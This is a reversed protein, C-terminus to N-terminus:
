EDSDTKSTIEAKTKACQKGYLAKLSRSREFLKEWETTRYIKPRTAYESPLLELQELKGLVRKLGAISSYQSSYRYPAEKAKANLKANEAQEKLTKGKPYRFYKPMYYRQGIESDTNYWAGHTMGDVYVLYGLKTQSVRTYHIVIFHKGDYLMVNTSYARGHLLEEVAKWLKADPKSM